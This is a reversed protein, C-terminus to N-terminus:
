VAQAPADITIDGSAMLHIMGGPQGQGGPSSATGGSVNVEPVTTIVSADPPPSASGGGGGGCGVGVMALELMALGAAATGWMGSKRQMANRLHLRPAWGDNRCIRM